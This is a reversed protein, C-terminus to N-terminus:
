LCFLKRRRSIRQSSEVKEFQVHETKPEKDQWSTTQALTSSGSSSRDNFPEHDSISTTDSWARKSPRTSLLKSVREAESKYHAYLHQLAQEHSLTPQSIRFHWYQQLYDDPSAQREPLVRSLLGIACRETASGSHAHAYLFAHGMQELAEQTELTGVTASGQLISDYIGLQDAHGTSYGIDSHKGKDDSLLMRGYSILSTLFLWTQAAAATPGLLWQLLERHLLHGEELTWTELAKYPRESLNDSWTYLLLLDSKEVQVYPSYRFVQRRNM